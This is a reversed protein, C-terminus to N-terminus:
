YVFPLYFLLIICLTKHNSPQTKDNTKSAPAQFDQKVLCDIGTIRYVNFEESFFKRVVLAPVVESEINIDVLALPDEAGEHLCRPANFKGTEDSAYLWIGLKEHNPGSSQDDTIYFVCLSKGPLSIVRGISGIHLGQPPMLTLIEILRGFRLAFIRVTKDVLSAALSWESGESHSSISICNAPIKHRTPWEYFPAPSNDRATHLEFITDINNIGCFVSKYPSIAFSVHLLTSLTIQLPIRQFIDLKGNNDPQLVLVTLTVNSSTKDIKTSEMALYTPKFIHEVPGFIGSLRSESTTKLAFM